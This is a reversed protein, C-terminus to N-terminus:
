TATELVFQGSYRLLSRHVMGALTPSSKEPGVHVASTIVVAARVSTWHPIGAFGPSSKEPATQVPVGSTVGVVSSCALLGIWITSAERSVLETAASSTSMESLRRM